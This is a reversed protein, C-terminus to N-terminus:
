WLPKGKDEGAQSQTCITYWDTKVVFTTEYEEYSTSMGNEEKPEQKVVVDDVSYTDSDMPEEKIKIKRLVKRKGELLNAEIDSKKLSRSDNDCKSADGEDNNCTTDSEISCSSKTENGTTLLKPKNHAVPVVTNNIADNESKDFEGSQEVESVESPKCASEDHHQPAQSDSKDEETDNHETMNDVNSTGVPEIIEVEKTRIQKAGPTGECSSESVSTDSKDSESIHPACM